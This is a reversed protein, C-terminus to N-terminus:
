NEAAELSEDKAEAEASPSAEEASEEEEEAAADDGIYLDCHEVEIMLPAPLEFKTSLGGILDRLENAKETKRYVGIVGRGTNHASLMAISSAEASLGAESLVKQVVERKNYSDNLLWVRAGRVMKSQLERRAAFAELARGIREASVAYVRTAAEGMSLVMTNLGIVDGEPTLLPGGSMGGVLAADTVLYPQEGRSEAEVEAEAEADEMAAEATGPPPKGFNPKGETDTGLSPMSFSEGRSKVTGLSAGGRASGTPDGCAIVFDGEALELSNGFSKVPLPPAVDEPLELIALDTNPVRGVILATHRETFGDAPLAVVASESDAPLAHSSTVLLVESGVEVALACGRAAEDASSSPEVLAVSASASAVANAVFDSAKLVPAPSRACFTSTTPARSLVLGIAPLLSVLLM